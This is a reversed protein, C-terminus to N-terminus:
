RRNIKAAARNKSNSGNYNLQNFFNLLYNKARLLPLAVFSHAAWNGNCLKKFYYDINQM